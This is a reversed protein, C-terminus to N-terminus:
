VCVCVCVCVCVSLAFSVRPHDDELVIRGDASVVLAAPLETAEVVHDSLHNTRHYDYNHNDPMLAVVEM